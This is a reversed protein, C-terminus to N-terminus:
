IQGPPADNQYPAVQVHLLHIRQQIYRDSVTQIQRQICYLIVSLTGLLPSSLLSKGQAM